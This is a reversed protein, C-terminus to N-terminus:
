LTVQALLLTYSPYRRYQRTVSSIGSRALREFSAKWFAMHPGRNTYTWAAVCGLAIEGLRLLCSMSWALFM